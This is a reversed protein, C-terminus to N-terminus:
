HVIIVDRMMNSNYHYYCGIVYMGPTNANYSSSTAGANTMGTSFSGSSIDTGSASASLGTANNYSPPWTGNWSGLNSATHPTGADTNKFQVTTPSTLNVVAATAGSTNYGLILGYTADNTQTIGLSMDVTNAAGGGGGGGGGHYGGGGGGGGCGALAAVMAVAAAAAFLRHVNHFKRLAQGGTSEGVSRTALIPRTLRCPAVGCGGARM